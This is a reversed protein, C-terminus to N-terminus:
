QLGSRSYWRGAASFWLGALILSAPVAQTWPGLPRLIAYAVAASALGLVIVVLGAMRLGRAVEPGPGIDADGSARFYRFRIAYLIGAATVLIFLAAAIFAPTLQQGLLARTQWRPELMPVADLAFEVSLTAPEARAVNPKLGALWTLTTTWHWGPSAVAPERLLRTGQPLKVTVTAAGVDYARGAPLIPWRFVGRMGEIEVVGLARYRAELIRTAAADSPLRWLISLTDGSTMSTGAQGDISASVEEFGDTRGDAIRHGFSGAARVAFTERIRASGDAAIEIELDFRDVTGPSAPDQRCGALLFFIVLLWV